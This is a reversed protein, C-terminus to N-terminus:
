CIRRYKAEYFALVGHSLLGAAAAFLFVRGHPSEALASLAADLGIGGDVNEWVAASVFYYGMIVLIVARATFSLAGLVTIFGFHPGKIEWVRYADRFRGSLGSYCEHFGAGIVVLGILFLLVAGLIPVALLVAVLTEEAQSPTDATRAALVIELATVALGLYFVGIGAAIGRKLIGLWATGADDVDAVARLVNWVAHGIAGIVFAILLIKGFPQHSITALAGKPDAIRGEPLGAALMISLAGVVVFLVGKAYFGFRALKRIYPRRVAVEAAEVAKEVTATVTHTKADDMRETM